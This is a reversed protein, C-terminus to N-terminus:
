RCQDEMYYLYCLSQKYRSTQRNRPGLYDRSDILDGWAAWVKDIFYSKQLAELVKLNKEILKKGGQCASRRSENGKAPLSEGHDM